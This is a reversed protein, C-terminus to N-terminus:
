LDGPITQIYQINTLVLNLPLKTYTLLGRLDRLVPKKNSSNKTKTQEDNDGRATEM